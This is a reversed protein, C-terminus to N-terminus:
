KKEKISWGGTSPTVEDDFAWKPMGMGTLMDKPIGKGMLLKTIPKLQAKAPPDPTFGPTPYLGKV